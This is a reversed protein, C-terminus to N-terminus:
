FHCSKSQLTESKLTGYHIRRRFTLSYSEYDSKEMLVQWYGSKFDVSTFYNSIDIHLTTSEEDLTAKHKIIRKLLKRVQFKLFM